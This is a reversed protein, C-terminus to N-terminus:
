GASSPVLRPSGALAAVLRDVFGTLTSGDDSGHDPNLETITLATVRSDLLVASLAAFAADQTLGINRGTNESLPADTFDICDVDFHVALRDCTALVALAEGAASAPDAAVASVPITVLGRSEITELEAATSQGRDHALFVIQDGGLLPTLPGLERLEPTAAEDGLMHAVGMWDLAGDRVSGPTNLDGHLDLYVLGLRGSSPLHGAVTGIGVTCDGGLVLALEGADLAARVREATDAACEVVAGLNQAFPRDRDPRWRWLAADGHDVVDIGAAALAVCLGADRLARPAKEQGPAYAGASSPVGIVGLTGTLPRGLVLHAAAANATAGRARERLRRV